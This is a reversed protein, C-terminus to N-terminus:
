ILTRVFTHVAESNDLYSSPREKQGGWVGFEFVTGFEFEFVTRRTLTPLTTSPAVASM